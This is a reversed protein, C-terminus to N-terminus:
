PNAIGAKSPKDSSSSSRHRNNHATSLQEHRSHNLYKLDFRGPVMEFRCAFQIKMKLSRNQIGQLSNVQIQRLRRRCIEITDLSVKLNRYSHVLPLHHMWIAAPRSTHIWALVQYAFTPVREVASESCPVAASHRAHLSRRCYVAPFYKFLHHINVFSSPLQCNFISSIISRYNSFEWKVTNNEISPLSM